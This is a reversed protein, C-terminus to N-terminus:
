VYSILVKGFWYWDKLVKGFRVLGILFDGSMELYKCVKGVRALCIWVWGFKDM